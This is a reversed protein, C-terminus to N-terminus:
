GKKNKHRKGNQATRVLDRMLEWRQHALKRALKRCDNEKKKKNKPDLANSRRWDWIYTTYYLITHYTFYIFYLLVYHVIICIQCRAGPLVLSCCPASPLVLSCWPAGPLVLSSWPASPLVLFCWPAAPTLINGYTLLYILMIIRMLLYTFLCLLESCWPAAGPLV